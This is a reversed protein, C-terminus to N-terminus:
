GARLFHRSRVLRRIGPGTSIRVLPWQQFSQSVWWLAQWPRKRASVERLYRWCIFGWCLAGLGATRAPSVFALPRGSM